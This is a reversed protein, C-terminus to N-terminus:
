SAGDLRALAARLAPLAKGLEMADFPASWPEPARVGSGDCALYVRAAEAVDLLAPLANVAEAILTADADREIEFAVTETTWNPDETNEPLPGIVLGRSGGFESDLGWPGPTAEALLARLREIDSM